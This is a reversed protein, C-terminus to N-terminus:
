FDHCFVNSLKFFFNAATDSVYLWVIGQKLLKVWRRVVFLECINGPHLYQITCLEASKKKSGSKALEASIKEANSDPKKSFRPEWRRQGCQRRNLTFAELIFNTCELHHGESYFSFKCILVCFVFICYKYYM